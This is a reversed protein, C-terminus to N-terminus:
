PQTQYTEGCPLGGIIVDGYGIGTKNQFMLVHGHSDVIYICFKSSIGLEESINEPSSAYLQNLKNIDISKYQDVVGFKQPDQLMATVKLADSQLKDVQKSPSNKISLYYFIGIVAIFIMVAVLLDVSLSQARM